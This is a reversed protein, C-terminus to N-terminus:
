NWCKSYGGILCLIMTIGLIECSGYFMAKDDILIGKVMVGFNLLTWFTSAFIMYCHLM